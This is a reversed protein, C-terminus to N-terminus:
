QAGKNASSQAVIQQVHQPSIGIKQLCATATAQIIQAVVQPNSQLKGVQECTDIAHCTLTTCAALLAPFFSGEVKKRQQPPMKGIVENIIIAMVNAILTTIDANINTSAQIKAMIKSGTQPGYIANMGANVCSQYESHIAPPLKAILQAEIQQLIPDKFSGSPQAQMPAGQAAPAPAPAAGPVSNLLGAM